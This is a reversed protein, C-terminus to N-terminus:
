INNKGIIYVYRSGNQTEFRRFRKIVRYGGWGDFLYDINHNYKYTPSDVIDLVFYRIDNNKCLFRYKEKLEEPSILHIFNVTILYDISQNKINEFTGVDFQVNHYIKRAASIVNEDIDVGIRNCDKINGIIEGLGCGIEVVKNKSQRNLYKVISIAYPRFNIPTIHWQQFGYKRQLYKFYIEKIKGLKQECVWNYTIKNIIRSIM